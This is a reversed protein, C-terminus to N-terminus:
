STERDTSQKTTEETLHMLMCEGEESAKKRVEKEKGSDEEGVNNGMKLFKRLQVVNGSGGGVTTLGISKNGVRLGNGYPLKGEERDTEKRKDHLCRQQTHGM